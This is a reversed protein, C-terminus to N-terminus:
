HNLLIRRLNVDAATIVLFVEDREDKMLVECAPFLNLNHPPAVM